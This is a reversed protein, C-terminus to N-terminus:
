YLSKVGGWVIHGDGKHEYLVRRPDSGDQYPPQQPEHVEYVDSAVDLADCKERARQRHVSMM